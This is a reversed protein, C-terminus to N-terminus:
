LHTGQWRLSGSEGTPTRDQLYDAFLRRIPLPMPIGTATLARLRPKQSVGAGARSIVREWPTKDAM